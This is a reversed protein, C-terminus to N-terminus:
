PTPMELRWTPAALGAPRGDLVEQPQYRAKYALSPCADVRYGLYVYDLGMRVADDILGVIHAVGLSPPAYEPHWFFYIASLAAPVVDVIGLGVLRNDHQPDRYAVERVSPHPFAFDFAYREADLPNGPWGRHAERQNHWTRYLTLREEDVVPTAVIRDLAAASRRARRQSRSAVFERVVVRVSLCRDCASCAPRFYAPGFRRWGLELLDNLEQPTVDVMLRVDLAATQDPLYPCQHPTERYREILRAVFHLNGSPGGGAM